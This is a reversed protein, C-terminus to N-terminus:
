AVNVLRALVELSLLGRAALLATIEDSRTSLNGVM